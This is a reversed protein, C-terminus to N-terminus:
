IEVIDRGILDGGILDILYDINNFVFRIIDHELNNSVCAKEYWIEFFARDNNGIINAQAKPEEAIAHRYDKMLELFKDLETM